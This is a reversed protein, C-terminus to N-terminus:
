MCNVEQASSENVRNYKGAEANGVLEFIQLHCQNDKIEYTAEYLHTAKPTFKASVLCVGSGTFGQVYNTNLYVSHTQYGMRFVLPRDARILVETKADKSFEEGLPMGLDKRGNDIAIGNLVAVSKGKERFDGLNCSTVEDDYQQIWTNVVKKENLDVFRIQSTPYGDISGVGWSVCGTLFFTVMMLALRLVKLKFEM